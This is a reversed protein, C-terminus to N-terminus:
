GFRPKRNGKLKGEFQDWCKQLMEKMQREKKPSADLMKILKERSGNFKFKPVVIGNGSKKWYKMKVLYDVCSGIDDLGYDYYIPIDVQRYKGTIKNKSVKFRAIMGIKEAQGNVTKNLAKAHAMWIEVSAYFKLAKGGARTKKSMTLPNIDDRTQSLILLFSGTRKIKPCVQRLYASAQKPKSMAYSGKSEQGKEHAEMRTEAHKMEAKDSLGDFSDAIYFCRGRKLAANLNAEWDEFLVSCESVKLKKGKGDKGQAVMRWPMVIEEAAKKGFLLEKNFSDAAEIDDYIKQMDALEPNYVACAMSTLAEFTKGASSDGILNVMKGIPYGGDVRDSIALNLLTSGTDIFMAPGRAKWAIFEKWIM